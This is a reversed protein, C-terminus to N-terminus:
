GEGLAKIESVRGRDRDAVWAMSGNMRASKKARQAERIGKEKERPDIVILEEENKKKWTLDKGLRDKEFSLAHSMWGKDDDEKAEADGSMHQDWTKCSQCNAIFHLDCLIAEDAHDAIDQENNAYLNPQKSIVQAPSSSAGVETSTNELKQRFADLLRLTQTDSGAGENTGHKRKRGRVATAPIIQELASKPKADAAPVTAINRKMSAKVEAIQANTRDLLTAVRDINSREPSKSPSRSPKEDDPLPLQMDPNPRKIPSSSSKSKSRRERLTKPQREQAMQARGGTEISPNFPKGELGARGNIENTTSGRAATDILTPHFKEKRVMPIGDTDEAEDGGFSLLVKRSKKKGKKLETKEEVASTLEVRKVERKVMDPFPNVLVEAGVIKTPFLPREGDDLEAEGMQVLNFVTDGVLRGFLTNRGELERCEGLTMFFQSGNTAKRGENAMGLLGRRNWKLRSHFEDEFTGGPYISEGGEGTGTPDGGQLIFGPVLRHFITGNYYGDLCHQLFSQSALPTQKAFIELLLDGSTTLLLVKATPQPELNYLSSM